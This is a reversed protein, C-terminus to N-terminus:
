DKKWEGVLEIELELEVSFKEFVTKRAIEILRAVDVAKTKGNSVFFNAHVPSIEASGVCTGKLGAADILRGAFDNPPNKFMSGMSAGPPQTLHRHSAFKEVLTKSKEPTSHALEFTAALIVANLSERKFISSRYGYKMKEVVWKERCGDQHLIEAMRLSGAVDSDHAGANGFVAGGVTGPIGTAWELGSLGRASVKRAIQGFSAGSGAWIKDPDRDEDLRIEKARNLVVVSRIGSDSVLINSGGGLIFVQTKSQRLKTVIEALEDVSNAILLADAPGGIRAATFRALPVNRQLRDGFEKYLTDWQSSLLQDASSFDM